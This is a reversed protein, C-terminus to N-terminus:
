DTYQLGLSDLLFQCSQCPPKSTGHLAAKNSIASRIIATRIRSGSLIQRAQEITTISQGTRTEIARLAQSIADVEACRGHWIARQNQPISDLIQQVVPHVSHVFGSRGVFSGASTELLAVTGPRQASPLGRYAEALAQIMARPNAPANATASPSPPQTAPASATSPATSTTSAAPAQPTTASTNTPERPGSPTSGGSGGTNSSVSGASGSGADPSGGEGGGGTADEGGSSGGGGSSGRDGLQDARRCYGGGTAPLSWV